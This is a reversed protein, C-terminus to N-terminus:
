RTIHWEPRTLLGTVLFLRQDLALLLDYVLPLYEDGHQWLQLVREERALVTYLWRRTLDDEEPKLARQALIELASRTRSKWWRQEPVHVELVKLLPARDLWAACDRMVKLSTAECLGDILGRLVRRDELWREEVSAPVPLGLENLVETLARASRQLQKASMMLRPADEVDPVDDMSAQGAELQEAKHRALETLYRSGIASLGRLQELVEARFANTEATQDTVMEALVDAAELASLRSASVLMRRLEQIFTRQRQATGRRSILAAMWRMLSRHQPRLSVWDTQEMVYEAALAQEVEPLTFAWSRETQQLIGARCCLGLLSWGENASDPTLGLSWFARQVNDRSLEVTAEPHPAIDYRIGALYRLLCRAQDIETSATTTSRTKTLQQKIWLPLIMVPHRYDDDPAAQAVQSLIGPLLPVAWQQFDAILQQAHDAERGRAHLLAAASEASLSYIRHQCTIGCSSAFRPTREAVILRPFRQLLQIVERWERDYVDDLQDALLVLRGARYAEALQRIFNQRLEEDVLYRQSFEGQTAAFQLFDQQPAQSAYDCVRLYVPIVETRCLRQGLAHMLETKGSGMAGVISLRATTCGADLTGSWEDPIWTPAISQLYDRYLALTDIPESRAAGSPSVETALPNMRSAADTAPPQTEIRKLEQALRRLATDRRAAMTTIGLALTEKKNRPALMEWFDAYDNHRLTQARREDGDAIVLAVHDRDVLLAGLQALGGPFRRRHRFPFFYGVELALFLNWERRLRANLTPPLCQQRWTEALIRGLVEGVSLNQIDPHHQRYRDVFPATTLPHDDLTAPDALAEIVTKLQDLDYL